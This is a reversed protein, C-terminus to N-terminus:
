VESTAETTSTTPSPRPRARHRLQALVHEEAPTRHKSCLWEESIGMKELEERLKMRGDVWERYEKDTFESPKRAVRLIQELRREEEQETTATRATQSPHTRPRWQPPSYLSAEFVRRRQPPPNNFLKVGLRYVHSPLLDRQKYHLLQEAVPLHDFPSRFLRRLGYDEQEM